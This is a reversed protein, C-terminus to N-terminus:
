SRWPRWYRPNFCKKNSANLTGCSIYNLSLNKPSHSCAKVAGEGPEARTHRYVPSASCRREARCIRHAGRLFVEASIAVTGGKWHRWNVKRRRSAFCALQTGILQWRADSASFSDTSLMGGLIGFWVFFQFSFVSFMSCFSRESWAPLILDGRHALWLRIGNSSSHKALIGYM